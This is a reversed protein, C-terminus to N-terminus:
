VHPSTTASIPRLAITSIGNPLPKSATRCTSFGSAQSYVGSYSEPFARISPVGQLSKEVQYAVHIADDLTPLRSYCLGVAIQPHLGRRYLVIMIDDDWKSRARDTLHYFHNMYEEVSMTGQQLQTLQLHAWRRLM